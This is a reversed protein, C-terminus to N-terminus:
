FITPQQFVTQVLIGIADGVNVNNGSDNRLAFYFGGLVFPDNGNASYTEFVFQNGAVDQDRVVKIVSGVVSDDQMRRLSLDLTATPGTQISFNVRMTHHLRQGEFPQGEYPIMVHDGASTATGTFENGITGSLDGTLNTITIADLTAANSFISCIRIRGDAGTGLAHPTIRPTLARLTSYNATVWDSATTALDGNFTVLYDTGAININATGSTGSLTVTISNHIFLQSYTTTGDPDKDAETFFTFGNATDGSPLPTFPSTADFQTSAINFGTAGGGGSVDDFFFSASLLNFLDQLDGTFPVAAAPQIQTSTVETPYIDHINNKGYNVRVAAGEQAIQLTASPSLSKILEGSDSLLQVNGNQLKLIKM